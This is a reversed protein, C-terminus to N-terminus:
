KSASTEIHPTRIGLNLRNTSSQEQAWRRDVIELAAVDYQCARIPDLILSKGKRIRFLPARFRFLWCSLYVRHFRNFV